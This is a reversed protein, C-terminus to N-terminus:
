GRRTPYLEERRAHISLRLLDLTCLVAGAANNAEMLYANEVKSHATADAGILHQEMRDLAERMAGLDERFDALSLM